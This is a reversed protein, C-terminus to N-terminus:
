ATYQVVITIIAAVANASLAQSAIKISQGALVIRNATPILTSVAGAVSGSSIQISGLSNGNNSVDLIEVGGATLGQNCAWVSTIIGPRPMPIYIPTTTKINDIRGSLFFAGVGNLGGLGQYLAVCWQAWTQSIFGKRNPTSVTVETQIPAPPCSSM